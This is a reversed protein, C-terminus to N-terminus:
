KNHKEMDALRFIPLWWYLLLLFAIHYEGQLSIRYNIDMILAVLLSTIFYSSLLICVYEILFRFNSYKM